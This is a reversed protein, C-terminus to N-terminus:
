VVFWSSVLSFSFVMDCVVCLFRGLVGDSM